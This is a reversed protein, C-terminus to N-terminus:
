LCRTAAARGDIGHLLADPQRAREAWRASSSRACVTKLAATVVPRRDGVNSPTTSAAQFAAVTVKHRHTQPAGVDALM